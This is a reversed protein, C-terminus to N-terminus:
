VPGVSVAANPARLLKVGVFGFSALLALGSLILAVPYQLSAAIGVMGIPMLAALWVALVSVRALGVALVILGIPLLTFVVLVPILVANAHLAVDILAQMATPDLGKDPKGAVWTMYDIGDLAEYGVFGMMSLDCGWFAAKPHTPHVLGRL